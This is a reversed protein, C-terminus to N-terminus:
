PVTGMIGLGWHGLRGLKNEHPCDRSPVTGTTTRGAYLGASGISNMVSRSKSHCVYSVDTM